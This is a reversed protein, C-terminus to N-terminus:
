WVTAAERKAAIAGTAVAVDPHHLGIAAIPDVQRRIRKRTDRILARRATCGRGRM